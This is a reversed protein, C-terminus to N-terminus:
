SQRSVELKGIINSVYNKVTKDSLNIQSAIERNTQGDVILELIKQEQETLQAMAYKGKGRRVRELFSAAVTPDLLSQGAGVKRIADVIEQSHIKKLLYGSAGAMISGMVAEEDSYSTLMLVKIDCNEDRIDRCAEIGSGDPLRIDLVVVDPVSGRAKEVAEAVTGAEAVVSLDEQRSVLMALGKRVIDHDDVILIKLKDTAAM